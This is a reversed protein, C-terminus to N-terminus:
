GNKQPDTPTNNRWRENPRRDSDSMMQSCHDMMQSMRSMMGMMGGPGMMQDREMMGRDMRQDPSSRTDQANLASAAVVGAVLVGALAIFSTRKLM